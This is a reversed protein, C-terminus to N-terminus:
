TLLERNWPIALYTERDAPELSEAVRAVLERARKLTRAHSQREGTAEFVRAAAWYCCQPWMTSEEISAERELMRAITSRAKTVEGLELYWLALDALPKAIWSQMGTEDRMAIAREMDRIAEAYEGASGEAFALNELCSAEETTYNFRRLLEIAKTASSKAGAFDGAYAKVLSLNALATTELTGEGLEGFLALATEFSEHAADFRGVALDALGRNNATSAAGRKDSMERFLEGATQFHVRAQAHQNSMVLAVALRDHGFGEARRDGSAIGAALWERGLAVQRPHDRDLVAFKYSTAISQITLAADQARRAADRAEDLLEKATVLNGLAMHVEALRLRAQAEGTRNGAERYNEIATEAAARAGAFNGARIDRRAQADYMAGFWDADGALTALERLSAIAAGETDRDGRDSALGVRRIAIQGRLKLDDLRLAIREAHDIAAFAAADNGTRRAIIEQELLLDARLLEHPACDVARVLYAAAEELAGVAIARRAAHLYRPAASEADGALDYHRAIAGALEDQREPYLEELVRAVRRHRDHTRAPQTTSEVIEAVTHHSFEYDFFGRGATERVIRRSILEDLADHTARETWGSVHRVAELAFRTGVIAAIEAFSRADPSLRDIREALLARLGPAKAVTGERASEFLERLFLPNGASEALLEEASPATVSPLAAKLNAVDALALPALWLGRALGNPRAEQLLRALPHARTIEEDRYTAVLLVPLMPLRRLVFAIAAITAEDAWHVDELILALPRAKGIEAVFRVLSEFLRPREREPDVRPVAVTTAALEPVLTSLVSFWVSDNPLPALLPLAARLAEVFCQYPTAEPFGTAGFVVRGGREEVGRAFEKVLRSKGIGPDGVVFVSTGRGRAARNWAELLVAMEADRGIFPLAPSTEASAAATEIRAPEAAIARGQLIADRLAITEPMPDIALEARLRKAFRDYEALAGARDGSEFRTAILRAVVDERWPDTALLTQAHAIARPFDREGRASSVLRALVDVYQNRLRERPISLWEDYQTALLDGRYLDAARELSQPERSTRDFEEVDLWTSTGERWRLSEATVDLWHKLAGPPLTRGLDHINARLKARAGEDSDDPWLLYALFDRAIAQGRHLLLYAALPLTKRPTAWAFPAGDVELSAHGLLRVRLM